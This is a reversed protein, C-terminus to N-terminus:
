RRRASRAGPSEEPAYTAWKPPESFLEVPAGTGPHAFSLRHAHLHLQYADEAPGYRTDGLIPHGLEAAHVRIQHTRGTTLHTEVLTRDARPELRRFKTCAQKASAEGNHAVVVHGSAREILPAECTFREPATGRVLLRYTREVLHDVFQRHISKNAVGRITLLVLGSAGRDLRHVVGVYPREVGEERLKRILADAVTGRATARTATVPVGTPKDVVVFLPDRHVFRLQNPEFPDADAAGRYVTVREGPIVRVSPIRVRHKGVYVGGSKILERAADVSGTRLRKAILNALTTGDEAGVVRFRIPRNRENGM